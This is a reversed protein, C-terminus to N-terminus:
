LDLLCFFITCFLERTLVVVDVRGVCLAVIVNAVIGTVFMPLLRVMTLVPSLGLYQQYYLQAWFQWALFCCWTLFAVALMAGLKGHARTWLSPRILPPASWWPVPKSSTKISGDTTTPLSDALASNNSNHHKDLVTQWYLFAAIFLVGIILLAIIDAFPLNMLEESLRIESCGIHSVDLRGGMRHPKAM